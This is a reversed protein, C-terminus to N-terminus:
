KKSPIKKKKFLFIKSKKRWSILKNKLLIFFDFLRLYGEM